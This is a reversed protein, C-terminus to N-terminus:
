SPGMPQSLAVKIVWSAQSPSKRLEALHEVPISRRHSQAESHFADRELDLVGRNEITQGVWLERWQSIAQHQLSQDWSLRNQSWVATIFELLRPNNVGM